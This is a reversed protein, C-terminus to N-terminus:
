EARTIAFPRTEACHVAFAMVGHWLTWAFWHYMSFPLSLVFGGVIAAIFGAIALRLSHALPVILRAGVLVAAAAVLCGSMLGLRDGLNWEAIAEVGVAFACLYGIAGIAALALCRFLFFGDRKLYPGFVGAAFFAGALLICHLNPVIFLGCCTLGWGLGVCLGSATAVIIRTGFEHRAKGM